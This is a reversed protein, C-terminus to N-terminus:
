IAGWHKLKEVGEAASHVVAHPVGARECWLRYFDQNSDEAIKKGPVKFELVGHNCGGSWMFFYDTGGPIMGMAKMIQATIQHRKGENPCHSWIGKYVGDVTMQRMDDAFEICIREEPNIKFGMSLKCRSMLQMIAWQTKDMNPPCVPKPKVAKGRAFGTSSAHIPKMAFGRSRSLRSKAEKQM